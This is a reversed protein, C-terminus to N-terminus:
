LDINLGKFVIFSCFNVSICKHEIKIKHTEYPFFVTGLLSAAVFCKNYMILVKTM